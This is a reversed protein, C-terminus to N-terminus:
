PLSAGADPVADARDLAGDRGRAGSMGIVKGAADLATVELWVENSDM